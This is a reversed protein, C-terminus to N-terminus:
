EAPPVPAGKLTQLFAVLASLEEPRLTNAYGPMYRRGRLITTVLQEPSTREGVNTLDPGVQGGIGGIAHCAHCAELQFVEAGRRELPSLDDLAWEPYPIEQYGVLIPSWPSRAGEYTLAVFGLLVVLVAAVAWPRRWASREGTPSLFPLLLLVAGVALPLGIILVTELAATMRALLAFFWLFYWDPRPYAQVLTPDAPEGLAPPGFIAALGLVVATVGLAGLADPWVADPFFPKGRRLEAEYAEPYIRPDVPKGPEPPESIGLRVVLYLHVGVFLFILAPLLFVHTAYFRTLTAPGVSWGALILQMLAGGIFPTKGASSAAVVISWYANQEWRLLQGTFAMGLTFLLLLSGSVWTLERPFKYSGYLFTRAMHAFALTVMASSGFFHAGRVLRGLPAENTIFQLSEFATDPSPVYTMALAIGTIVQLIFATLTASGLVYWWNVGRPVPHVLIPLITSTVGLRADLWRYYRELTREM